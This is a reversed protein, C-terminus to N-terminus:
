VSVDVLKTKTQHNRIESIKTPRNLRTNLEGLNTGERKLGLFQPNTKEKELVINNDSTNKIGRSAITPTQLRQIVNEVEHRSLNRFAPARPIMCGYNADYESLKLVGLKLNHSNEKERLQDMTPYISSYRLSITQPFGSYIHKIDRTLIKNFSTQFEGMTFLHFVRKRGDFCRFWVTQIEQQWCQTDM